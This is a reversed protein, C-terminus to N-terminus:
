VIWRDNSRLNDVWINIMRSTDNPKARKFINQDSKVNKIEWMRVRYM